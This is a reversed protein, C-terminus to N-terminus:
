RTERVTRHRDAWWSWATLIIIGILATIYLGPISPPATGAIMQEDLQQQTLAATRETPSPVPQARSDLLAWCEDLAFIQRGGSMPAGWAAVSRVADARSARIRGLTVSCVPVVSLTAFRPSQLLGVARWGRRRIEEFTFLFFLGAGFALPGAAGIRYRSTTQVLLCAALPTLIAVLALAFEERRLAGRTLAAFLGVVEVHELLYAERVSAVARREAQGVTLDPRERRLGALLGAHADAPGPAGDVLRDGVAGGLAQALDECLKFNEPGGLGRGGAVIVDADEISPGESEEHAQEVMTAALSFDQLRSEFKEVEASGGSEQPEFTGSRVLALRPESSWGVDVYVSDGLAPRKGVLEGSEVALETLDYNLGADLRAALGAAVDASLVSAAFLVGDFGGEGLLTELADVRPQPLPRDLLVDEMVHVRRAGFRGADAALGGVDSGLLVGEAEGLSAAKGLVGLADKQLKGEHHELFVLFKM